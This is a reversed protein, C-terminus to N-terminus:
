PVSTIIGDSNLTVHWNNAVADYPLYQIAEAFVEIVQLYGDEEALRIVTGPALLEGTFGDPSVPSTYYYTDDSGKMWGAAIDFDPMESPKSVIQATGSSTDVWYTVLRLRLYASINSTNEVTISSKETMNADTDEHVTCSVKAPVFNNEETQTVRFMYAAVTGVIALSLLIVAALYLVHFVRNKM